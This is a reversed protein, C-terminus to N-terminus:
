VQTLLPAPVTVIPAGAVVFVNLLPEPSVTPPVPAIVILLLTDPAPPIVFVPAPVSVSPPVFVYAPMLVILAPTRAAEDSAFRPALVLAVAIVKGARLVPASRSVPVVKAEALPTVSVPGPMM